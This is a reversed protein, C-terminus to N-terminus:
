CQVAGAGVWFDLYLAGIRRKEETSCNTSGIDVKIKPKYICCINM